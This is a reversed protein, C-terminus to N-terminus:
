GADRTRNQNEDVYIRLAAIDSLDPLIGKEATLSFTLASLTAGDGSAGGPSCEGGGSAARLRFADVVVARPDDSGLPVRSTRMLDTLQLLGNDGGHGDLLVTTAARNQDDRWVYRGADLRGGRLMDGLRFIRSPTRGSSNVFLGIRQTPIWACGNPAGPVAIRQCQAEDEFWLIADGSVYLGNPSSWVKAGAAAQMPPEQVTKYVTTRGGRRSMIRAAKNSLRASDNGEAIEIWALHGDSLALNLPAIDGRAVESAGTGDYYGIATDNLAAAYQAPVGTIDGTGPVKYMWAVERGCAVLFPDFGAGAVIANDGQPTAASFTAIAEPALGRDLDSQYVTFSSTQGGPARHMWAIYRGDFHFVPKVGTMQMVARDTSTTRAARQASGSSVPRIVQDTGDYLYVDGSASSFVIDGYAIRPFGGKLESRPTGLDINSDRSGTRTIQRTQIGDWLMLEYRGGVVKIYAVRGSADLDPWGPLAGAVGTDLEITNSGDWLYLTLASPTPGETWIM